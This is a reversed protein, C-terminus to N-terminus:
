GFCHFLQKDPSVSLSPGRDNHFPCVGVYSRGVKKLNIYDSIVDVIDNYEIVKSIIEDPIRGM